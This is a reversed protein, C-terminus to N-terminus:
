QKGHMQFQGYVGPQPWLEIVQQIPNLKIFQWAISHVTFVISLSSLGEGVGWLTYFESFGWRWRSWVLQNTELLSQMSSNPSHLKALMRRMEPQLIETNPSKGNSSKLWHVTEFSLGNKTWHETCDSLCKARTHTQCTPLVQPYENGTDHLM